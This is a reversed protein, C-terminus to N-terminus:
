PPRNPARMSSMTTAVSSPGLASFLTLWSSVTTSAQHVEADGPLHGQHGGRRLPEAPRGREGEGALAGFHDDGGAALLAQDFGALLDLRLGARPAHVGHH